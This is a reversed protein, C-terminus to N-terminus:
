SERGNTTGEDTEQIQDVVKRISEHHVGVFNNVPDFVGNWNILVLGLAATSEVGSGANSSAATRKVRAVISHVVPHLDTVNAGTDVWPEAVRKSM